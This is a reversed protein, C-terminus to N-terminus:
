AQFANEIHFIPGYEPMDVVIVDFRIYEYNYQRYESLFCKATRAIKQQKTLSLEKALTEANGNPLTKVEIFVLFNDKSAVIDLEGFSKQWNRAVVTYGKEILYRIAKEEGQLGLKKKYM